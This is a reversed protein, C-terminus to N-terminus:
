WSFSKLIQQATALNNGMDVYMFVLVITNGKNETTYFDVYARGGYDGYWVDYAILSRHWLGLEDKKLSANRITPSPLANAASLAKTAIRKEIDAASRNTVYGRVTVGAFTSVRWDWRGAQVSCDSFPLAANTIVTYETEWEGKGSRVERLEAREIRVSEWDPPIQFSAGSPEMRITGGDRTSSHKEKDPSAGATAFSFLLTAMFIFAGLSKRTNRKCESFEFM